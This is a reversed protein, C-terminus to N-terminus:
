VCIRSNALARNEVQTQMHAFMEEIIEKLNSGKFVEMMRGSFTKDVTDVRIVNWDGDEVEVKFRIWATAQVKASDLDKLEENMLGVLNERTREVFTDVDMRSRPAASGNIRFSRYGGM